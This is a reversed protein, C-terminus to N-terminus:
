NERKCPFIQSKSWTGDWQCVAEDKWLYNSATNPDTLRSGLPCEYEVKSGFRKLETRAFVKEEQQYILPFSKISLIAQTCQTTCQNM